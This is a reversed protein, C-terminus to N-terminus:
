RSTLAFSKILKQQPLHDLMLTRQGSSPIEVTAISQPKPQDARTLLLEYAANPRASGIVLMGSGKADVFVSASTNQPATAAFIKTGPAVVLSMEHNARALQEELRANEESLQRIEAERTALHEKAVRIGLERWGWLALFFLALAILWWPRFTFRGQSDILTSEGIEDPATTPTNETM